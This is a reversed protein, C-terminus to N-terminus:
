FYVKDNVLAKSRMKRITKRIVKRVCESSVNFKHSIEVNTLPKDLGIGFHMKVMDIERKKLGKFLENVHKTKLYM